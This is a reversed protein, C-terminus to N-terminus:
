ISIIMVERDGENTNSELLKVPERDNSSSLLKEPEDIKNDIGSSSSKPTQDIKIDTNLEASIGSEENSSIKFM